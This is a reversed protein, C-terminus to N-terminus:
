LGAKHPVRHREVQKEGVGKTLEPVSGVTKCVSPM